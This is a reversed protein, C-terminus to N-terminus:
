PKSHETGAMRQRQRCQEQQQGVQAEGPNAWGDDGDVV